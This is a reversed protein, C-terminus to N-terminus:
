VDNPVGQNLRQGCANCDVSGDPWHKTARHPCGVNRRPAGGHVKTTPVTGANPCVEPGKGLRGFGGLRDHCVFVGDQVERRVGCVDCFAVRM